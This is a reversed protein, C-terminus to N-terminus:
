SGGARLCLFVTTSDQKDLSPPNSPIEYNIKELSPIGRKKPRACFWWSVLAQPEPREFGAIPWCCSPNWGCLVIPEELRLFNSLATNNANHPPKKLVCM